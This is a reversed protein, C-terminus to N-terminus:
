AAGKMNALSTLITGIADNKPPALASNSPAFLGQYGNKISHRIDRVLEDPRTIYDKIIAEAMSQTLPHGIQKRHTAWDRLAARTGPASLEPPITVKKKNKVVLDNDIDYDTDIDIDPEPTRRKKDSCKQVSEKRKKGSELKRHYAEQDKIVRGNSFGGDDEIILKKELLYQFYAEPDEVQNNEAICLLLEKDIVADTGKSMAMYIEYLACKGMVKFLKTLPIIRNHNPLDVDLLVHKLKARGPRDSDRRKVQNDKLDQKDKQQPSSM